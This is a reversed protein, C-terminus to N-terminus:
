SQVRILMFPHTLNFTKNMQREDHHYKLRCHVHIAENESKTLKYILIYNVGPSHNIHVIMIFYIISTYTHIYIYINIYLRTGAGYLVVALM